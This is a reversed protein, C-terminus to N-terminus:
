IWFSDRGESWDVVVEEVDLVVVVVVVVPRGVSRWSAKLATWDDGQPARRPPKKVWAFFCVSVKYESAWFSYALRLSCAALSFVEKESGVKAKGSWTWAFPVAPSNSGSWFSTCRGSESGASMTLSAEEITDRSRRVAAAFSLRLFIWAASSAASSARKFNPVFMREKRRSATVTVAGELVEDVEFV